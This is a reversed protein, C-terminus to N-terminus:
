IKNVVIIKSRNNEEMMQLIYIGKSLTATSFSYRNIGAHNQKILQSCWIKGNIDFLNLKIDQAVDLEYEVNLEESFLSPKAILPILSKSEENIFSGIENVKAVVFEGLLEIDDVSLTNEEENYIVNEVVQWEEIENLRHILGPVGEDSEVYNMVSDLRFTLKGQPENRLLQSNSPTLRIISNSAAVFEAGGGLDYGAWNGFYQGVRVPNAPPDKYILNLNNLDFQGQIDSTDKTQIYQGLEVSSGFNQYKYGLFAEFFDTESNQNYDYQIKGINSYINASLAGIHYGGEESYVVKSDSEETSGTQWYVNKVKELDSNQAASLINQPVTGTELIITLTDAQIAALKNFLETYSLHSDFNFDIGNNGSSNGVFHFFYHCYQGRAEELDQCITEASVDQLGRLNYVKINQDLVKPGHREYVFKNRIQNLVYDFDSQLAPLVNGIVMAGRKQIPPLVEYEQLIVPTPIILAHPDNILEGTRIPDKVISDKKILPIGGEEIDEFEIKNENCAENFEITGIIFDKPFFEFANFEIIMLGSNDSKQISTNPASNITGSELNKLDLYVNANAIKEQGFEEELLSLLTGDYLFRNYEKTLSQPCQYQSPRIGFPDVPDKEEIWQATEDFTIVDDNNKDAGPESSCKNFNFSHIGFGLFVGDKFGSVTKSSKDFTSSTSIEINKFCSKPNNDIAVIGRGSFCCDILINIDTAESNLIDEAFEEYSYFESAKKGTAMKGDETGHGRYYFYVIDYGTQLQKVLTRISDGSIGSRTIIQSAPIKPGNPNFQLNHKFNSIDNEFISTKLFTADLGNVLLACVKPNDYPNDIEFEPLTPLDELPTIPNIAESGGFDPFWPQGDIQLWWNLDFVETELSSPDLLFLKCPQEFDNNPDTVSWGVYKPGDLTISLEEERFSSIVTNQTLATGNFTVVQNEGLNHIEDNSLQIIKSKFQDINVCDSVTFPREGTSNNPNTNADAYFSTNSYYSGSAGLTDAPFRINFTHMTGPSLTGIKIDHEFALEDNDSNFIQILIGCNTSPKSNSGSNVNGANGIFILDQNCRVNGFPSYTVELIAFQSYLFIPLCLMALTTLLSKM